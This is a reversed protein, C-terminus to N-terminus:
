KCHTPAYCISEMWETLVFSVSVRLLICVVLSAV